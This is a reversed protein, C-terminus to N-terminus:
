RIPNPESKQTLNIQGARSTIIRDSESDPIKLDILEPKQTWTLLDM